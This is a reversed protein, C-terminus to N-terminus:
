INNFNSINFNTKSLFIVSTVPIFVVYISLDFSPQLKLCQASCTLEIHM